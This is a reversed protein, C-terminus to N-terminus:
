RVFSLTHISLGKIKTTTGVKTNKGGQQIHRMDGKNQKLKRVTGEEQM